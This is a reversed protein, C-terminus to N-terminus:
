TSARYVAAGLSQISEAMSGPLAAVASGAADDASQGAPIRGLRRLKATLIQMFRAWTTKAMRRRNDFYYANSTQELQPAFEGENGTRTTRRVWEIFGHHKLRRLAEVVSNRHCAAKEAIRKISPFLKGSEFDLFSLLAKLVLVDIRRLRRDAETLTKDLQKILERLVAPRGIPVEAPSKKALEELEAEAAAREARARRLSALPFDRWHKAVLDEATTTMAERHALGAAVSGDQIKAWPQAQPDTELYSHRRPV